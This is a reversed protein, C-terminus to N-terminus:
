RGGLGLKCRIYSGADEYSGFGEGRPSSTDLREYVYCAGKVGLPQIVWGYYYYPSPVDSLEIASKPYTM